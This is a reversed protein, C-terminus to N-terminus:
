GSGARSRCRLATVVEVSAPASGPCAPGASRARVAAARAPDGLDDQQDQGEGDPQPAYAWTPSLLPSASGACSRSRRRRGGDPRDRDRVDGHPQERRPGVLHRSGTATASLPRPSAIIWRSSTASATRAPCCCWAGGAGVAAVWSSHVPRPSAASPRQHQQDHAVVPHQLAERVGRHHEAEREHQQRQHGPEPTVILPARM